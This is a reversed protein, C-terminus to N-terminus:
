EKWFVLRFFLFGSITFDRCGPTESSKWIRDKLGNKLASGPNEFRPNSSTFTHKIKGVM